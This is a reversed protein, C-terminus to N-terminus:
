AVMVMAPMFEDNDDHDDGVDSSFFLFSFPFSFLFFFGSVLTGWGKAGVLSSM